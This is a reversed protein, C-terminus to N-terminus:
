LTSDLVIVTAPTSHHIRGALDRFVAQFLNRKALTGAPLTPIPVMLRAAGTADLTLTALQSASGDAPLLNVGNETGNLTFGGRESAYISVLDGPEGAIEVRMAANERIIRKGFLVRGTVPLPTVSTGPSLFVDQPVCGGTGGPATAGHIPNSEITTATSNGFLYLGSGPCTNNTSDGADGGLLHTRAFFTTPSWLLRAAAGGPGAIGGNPPGGGCDLSTSAGAGALLLCDYLAVRTNSCTIADGGYGGHGVPGFNGAAGGFIECRAFAVDFCSVIEVAPAGYADAMCPLGPRGEIDCGQVRVTGLNNTLRLAPVVQPPQNLPGRLLMGTLTVSRASGLNAITVLGRVQVNSAEEAVIDLAKNQITFGAYRGSKVVLVDGDNAAAVADPLDTFHGSGDEAVFFVDARAASGSALAFALLVLNRILTM